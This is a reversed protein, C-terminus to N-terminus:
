FVHVSPEVRTSHTAIGYRMADMAHDAFKVPEDLVNGNKDTRWKYSSREKNINVNSSLSYFKWRKCLDIGYKVSGQGKEAPHVNFGANFIEEIRNPDECDAYVPIWRRDQPIIVKLREILEANTLKTEYLSERLYGVREDAVNVEVLASPSNFGFDLGYFTDRFSTPFEQVIEFPQYIINTLVGWLGQGFIRWSSPDQRELEELDKVYEDDLFPNDRYTSHIVELRDGFTPDLILKQNIWGAEDDPNLSVFVQNPETPVTSGSLRTRVIRWDDWTFESGEELWVFHWESSKIKQPDDISMFAFYSGTWPCTITHGVKDHVLRGYLGLESLMDVIVRYTTARLAPFTKRCILIKKNRQTCLRMIFLQALSYSKSSRAGGVNVVYRRTSAHNRYFVNTAKIEQTRM